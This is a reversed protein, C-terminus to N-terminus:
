ALVRSEEEDADNAWADSHVGSMSVPGTMAVLGSM